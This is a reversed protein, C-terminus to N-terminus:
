QQRQVHAPALQHTLLLCRCCHEQSTYAAPQTYELPQFQLHLLLVPLV